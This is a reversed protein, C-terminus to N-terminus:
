RVGIGRMEELWIDTISTALHRIDTESAITATINITPSFILTGVGVGRPTVMEGRHLYALGPATVIGGEEMPVIRRVGAVMGRVGALLPTPLLGKIAEMIIGPAAKIGEVIRKIFEKGVEIFIRAKEILKDKLTTFIAIVTDWLYFKRGTIKELIWDIFKLGFEWLKVQLGFLFGILKKMVSVVIDFVKMAIEKIKDWNKFAYWVALVVAIIGILAAIFPAIAMLVPGLAMIIGGLGLGFQGLWFIVTGFIAALIVLVGLFMRVPEPLNMFMEALWLLLPMIAEVVPMFLVMLVISFLEFIGTADLAPKLLGIMMRQVAMGFFMVSLLEMRFGRVGHTLLRFRHAVRGGITHFRIGQENIATWVPMSLGMVGRFSDASMAIDKYAKTASVVVRGHKDLTRGVYATRIGMRAFTRELTYTDIGMKRSLVRLRKQYRELAQFGKPEFLTKVRVLIDEIIPM